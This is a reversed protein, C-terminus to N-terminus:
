KLAEHRLLNQVSLYSRVRLSVYINKKPHKLYESLTRDYLDCPIRMVAIEGQRLGELHFEIGSPGYNHYWANIDNDPYNEEAKALIFSKITEVAVPELGDKLVALRDSMERFSIVTEHQPNDKKNIYFQGRELEPIVQLKYNKSKWLFMVRYEPKHIKACSPCTYCMFTGSFIKDLVDPEKDIDIEEDYEILLNYGCFCKINEKIM